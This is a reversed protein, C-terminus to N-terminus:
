PVLIGHALVFLCIWFFPSFFFNIVTCPPSPPHSLCLFLIEPPQLHSPSSALASTIPSGQPCNIQLLLLSLVVSVYLVSIYMTHSSRSTRKWTGEKLSSLRNEKVM